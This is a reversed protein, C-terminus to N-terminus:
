KIDNEALVTVALTFLISFHMEKFSFTHIELFIECLHTGLSGTTLYTLMTEPLSKASLLRCTM